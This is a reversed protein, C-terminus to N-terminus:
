EASNGSFRASPGTSHAGPEVLHIGGSPRGSHPCFIAVAIKLNASSGPGYFITEKGSGDIWVATTGKVKSLLAFARDRGMVALAAARM